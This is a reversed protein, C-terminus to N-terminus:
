DYNFSCNLSIHEGTAISVTQSVRVYIKGSNKTLYIPFSSKITFNSNLLYAQCFTRNKISINRPEEFSCIPGGAITGTSEGAVGKRSFCGYIKYENSEKNDFVEVNNYALVEPLLMNNELLKKDFHNDNRKVLSRGIPYREGNQPFDVDLMSYLKIQENTFDGEAILAHKIKTNWYSELFMGRGYNYDSWIFTAVNEGNLYFIKNKLDLCIINEGENFKDVFDLPMGTPFYYRGNNTRLITTGSSFHTPKGLTKIISVGNFTGDINLNYNCDYNPNTTESFPIFIENEVLMPKELNFRTGSQIISNWSVDLYSINGTLGTVNIKAKVFGNNSGDEVIESTQTVGGSFGVNLIKFTKPLGTYRFSITYTGTKTLISNSFGVGASSSVKTCELTYGNRISTSNGPFTSWVFINNGGVGAWVSGDELLQYKCNTGEVIGSDKALANERDIPLQGSVVDEMSGNGVALVTNKPMPLVGKFDEQFYILRMKGVSNDYEAFVQSGLKVNYGKDLPYSYLGDVNIKVDENEKIDIPTVFSFTKKDPVFLMRPRSYVRILDIQLPDTGNVMASMTEMNTKNVDEFVEYHKNLKEVDASDLYEPIDINYLGSKRM